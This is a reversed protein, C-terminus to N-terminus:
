KKGYDLGQILRICPHELTGTKILNYGVSLSLVMQLELFNGCGGCSTKPFCVSTSTTM